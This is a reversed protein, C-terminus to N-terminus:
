LAPIAGRGSQLVQGGLSGALESPLRSALTRRHAVGNGGDAGGSGGDQWRRVDLKAVNQSPLGLARACALIVAKIHVIVLKVALTM